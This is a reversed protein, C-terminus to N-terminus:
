LFRIKKFLPDSHSFYRAMHIIRIAKKQLKTIHKQEYGWALTCYNLHSLILSNYQTVLINQPVFNNLRNIGGIAKSIQGATKEVHPKWIIKKNILLGLFNFTDVSTIETNDIKPVPIPVWKPPKYYLM